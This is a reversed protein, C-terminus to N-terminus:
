RCAQRIEKASQFRSEIIRIFRATQEATLLYYRTRPDELIHIHDFIFPHMKMSQRDLGNEETLFEMCQDKPILLSPSRSIINCRCQGSFKDKDSPNVRVLLFEINKSYRKYHAYSVKPNNEDQRLSESMAVRVLDCIRTNSRSRGYCEVFDKVTSILSLSYVSSFLSLIMLANILRFSSKRMYMNGASQSILYTSAAM